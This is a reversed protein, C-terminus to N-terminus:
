TPFSDPVEVSYLWDSAWADLDEGTSAEAFAIFDETTHSNGVDIALLM